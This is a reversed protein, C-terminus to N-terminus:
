VALGALFIAALSFMEGAMWAMPGRVLEQGAVRDDRALIGASSLLVAVYCSLAGVIGSAQVIFVLIFAPNPSTPTPLNIDAGFLGFGIAATAIALIGLAQNQRDNAPAPM